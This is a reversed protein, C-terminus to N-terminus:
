AGVAQRAVSSVPTAAPQNLTGALRDLMDRWEKRTQEAFDACDPDITQSLTLECGSDSPEIDVTVPDGPSSGTSCTFMLHRPRDIKLFSGTHVEEEGDCRRAITFRGHLRGDLEIRTIHGTSTAFLWDGARSPDLWRDFVSEPPADFRRTTTVIMPTIATM